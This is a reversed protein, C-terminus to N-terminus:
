VHLSHRLLGNNHWAMGDCRVTNKIYHTMWQKLFNYIEFYILTYCHEFIHVYICYLSTRQFISKESLHPLFTLMNLKNYILQKCWIFFRSCKKIQVTSLLTALNHCFKNISKSHVISVYQVVKWKNMMLHPLLLSVATPSSNPHWISAIVVRWEGFIWM